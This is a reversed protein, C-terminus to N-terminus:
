LISNKRIYYREVEKNTEQLGKKSNRQALIPSRRNCFSAKAKGIDGEREKRSTEREFFLFSICVVDLSQDTGFSRAEEKRLACDCASFTQNEADRYIHEM